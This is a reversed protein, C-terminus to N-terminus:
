YGLCGCTCSQTPGRVGCLQTVFLYTTPYWSGGVVAALDVRTLARITETNLKLKTTPKRM